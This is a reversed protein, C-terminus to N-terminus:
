DCIEPKRRRDRLHPYSNLVVILTERASEFSTFLQHFSVIGMNELWCVTTEIGPEIDNGSVDKLKVEPDALQVSKIHDIRLSWSNSTCYVLFVPNQSEMLNVADLKTIM